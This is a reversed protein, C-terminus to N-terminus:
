QRTPRNENKQRLIELMVMVIGTIFSMTFIAAPPLVLPVIGDLRNGQVGHALLLVFTIGAIGGFRLGPAIAKNIFKNWLEKYYGSLFLSILFTHVFEFYGKNMKQFYLVLVLGFALTAIFSALSKM